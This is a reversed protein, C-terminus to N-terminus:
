RLSLLALSLSTMLYILLVLFYQSSHKTFLCYDNQSQKFSLQKLFLPLSLHWQRSTQKLRYVSRKLLCVQRPQAKSYEQPPVM